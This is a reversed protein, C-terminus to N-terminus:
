IYNTMVDDVGAHVRSSPPRDGCATHSRRYDYRHVWVGIAERREAESEEARTYLCGGTLLRQYREIKGNRRPNYIAIRQSRGNFACTSHHFARSTYNAGNDTILRTTRIFGHAAFFM